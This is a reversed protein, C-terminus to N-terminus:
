SRPRQQKIHVERGPVSCTATPCVRALLLSLARTPPSPAALSPSVWTVPAERDSSARADRSDCPPARAAPSGWSPSQVGTRRNLPPRAGGGCGRMGEATVRPLLRREERTGPGWTRGSSGPVTHGPSSPRGHRVHGRHSPVAQGGHARTEPASVARGQGRVVGRRLGSGAGTPGGSPSRSAKLRPAGRSAWCGQCGQTAQDGAGWSTAQRAPHSCWVCCRLADPKLPPPRRPPLM